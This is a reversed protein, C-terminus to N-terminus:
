EPGSDPTGRQAIEGREIAILEDCIAQVEITDHSVWIMSLKLDHILRIFFALTKYRLAADLSSLPEDM